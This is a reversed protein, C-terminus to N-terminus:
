RAKKKTGKGKTEKLFKQVALHPKPVEGTDEEVEEVAEARLEELSDRARDPLVRWTENFQNLKSLVHAANM